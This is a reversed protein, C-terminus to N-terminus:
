CRLREVLREYHQMTTDDKRKLHSLLVVTRPNQALAEQHRKLFTYYLADVQECWDGKTYSSLKLLYHSGNFYPKTTMMSTTHQSMAYVNPVMVWDYADIHTEMFWHYVQHPDTELMFLTSGVVMLREIHHSYATRMVKDIAADLPLIGSNATYMWSPLRQTHHHQNTNRLTRGHLVYSARMFERWGVIQRIFGEKSALPVEMKLAADIIEQPNLLGINLSSSLRAHFLVDSRADLADQYPGFQAFREQFFEEMAKLAQARTYPYQFGEVAGIHSAFHTKVYTKAEELVESNPACYVKPLPTNLPIKKRNEGDFSYQGGLPQDGNMLLNLRQRQFRYFDRMLFPHTNFYNRLTALDTLFNPTPHVILRVQRQKLERTLRQHLYDDVVDYVHVEDGSQLGHYQANECAERYDIYAVDLGQKALRLAYAKMSARHLVLKQKHFLINVKADAFFLPDEILVVRDCAKPLSPFLQHPYLYFHQAM